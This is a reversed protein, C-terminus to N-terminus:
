RISEDKKGKYAGSFYLIARIGVITQEQNWDAFV